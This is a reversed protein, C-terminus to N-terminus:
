FTVPHSTDSFCSAYLITAGDPAVLELHGNETLSNGDKSLKVNSSGKVTFLFTGTPDFAYHFFRYTYNRRSIQKWIGSGTTRNRDISLTDEANMTGGQNFTYTVNILEGIPMGSVCDNGSSVGIAEWVGTLDDSQGEATLTPTESEDKNQGFTLPVATLALMMAMVIVLHQTTNKM